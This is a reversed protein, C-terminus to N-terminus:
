VHDISEETPRSSYLTPHWKPELLWRDLITSERFKWNYWVKTQLKYHGKQLNEKHDMMIVEISPLFIILGRSEAFKQPWRLHCRSYALLICSPGPKCLAELFIQLRQLVPSFQSGFNYNLRKLKTKFKKIDSKQWDNAILDTKEKDKKTQHRM